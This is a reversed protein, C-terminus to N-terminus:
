APLLLAREHLLLRDRRECLSPRCPNSVHGTPIRRRWFSRGIRWVLTITGAWRSLSWSLDFKTNQFLDVGNPYHSLLINKVGPKAVFSGGNSGSIGILRIAGNGLIVEEDMLWRGGTAAFAEKADEFDIEAWYDHNGPIGYIPASVSCLVEFAEAAFHADEVLDGTFCVFDPKQANILRVVKELYKRDGKHHIDTIQVFRHQPRESLRLREVRLWTPEFIAAHTGIALPTTVIAGLFKRRSFRKV